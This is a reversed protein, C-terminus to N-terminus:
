RGGAAQIQHARDLNMDIIELENKLKADKSTKMSRMLRGRYSNLIGITDPTAATSLASFMMSRRLAAWDSNIPKGARGKNSLDTEVQGGDELRDKIWRTARSSNHNAIAYGLASTAFLAAERAQPDSSYAFEDSFRILEEVASEDGVIGLVFAIASWSDKWSPDRLMRVLGTTDHGKYKLAEEYPVGHQFSQTAFKELPTLQSLLSGDGPTSNHQKLTFVRGGEDVVTGDPYIVRNGKPTPAFKQRLRALTDSQMNSMDYNGLEDFSISEIDANNISPKEAFLSPTFTLSMFAILLKGRVNMHM